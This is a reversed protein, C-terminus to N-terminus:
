SSNQVNCQNFCGLPTYIRNISRAILWKDSSYSLNFCSIYIFCSHDPLPWEKFLHGQYKVKVKVSPRSTPVSSFTWGRPICMHFIFVTDSVM